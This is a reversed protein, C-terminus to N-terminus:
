LNRKYRENIKDDIIKEAEIFSAAFITVVGEDIKGAITEVTMKTGQEDTWSFIEKPFKNGAVNSVQLQTLLPEGYKESLLTALARVDETRGGMSFAVLSGEKDFEVRALFLKLKDRQSFASLNGFNLTMFEILGENKKHNKFKSCPALMENSKCLNEVTKIVDPKGFPVGKLTILEKASGLKPKKDSEIEIKPDDNNKAGASNKQCASLLTAFIVAAAVVIIKNIKLNVEQNYIQWKRVNFNIMCCKLM